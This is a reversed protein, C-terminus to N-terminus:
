IMLLKNQKLVFGVQPLNQLNALDLISLLVYKRELLFLLSLEKKASWWLHPLGKKKKLDAEKLRREERNEEELL